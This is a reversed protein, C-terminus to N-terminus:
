TNANHPAADHQVANCIWRVARLWKMFCIYSNPSFFCRLHRRFHVIHLM